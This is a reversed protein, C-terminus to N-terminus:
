SQLVRASAHPVKGFRALDRVNFVALMTYSSPMAGECRRRETGDGSVAHKRTRHLCGGVIYLPAYKACTCLFRTVSFVCHPLHCNVREILSTANITITCFPPSLHTVLRILSHHTRRGQRSLSQNTLGGGGMRQPKDVQNMVANESENSPMRGLIWPAHILQGRQFIIWKDCITDM